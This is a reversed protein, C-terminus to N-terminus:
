LGSYPQRLTSLLLKNKVICQLFIEDCKHPLELGVSEVNPRSEPPSGNVQCYPSFM